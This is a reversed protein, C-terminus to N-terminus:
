MFMKAIAVLWRKFFPGKRGKKSGKRFSDFFFKTYVVSFNACDHHRYKKGVHKLRVHKSGNEKMTKHALIANEYLVEEDGKCFCIQMPAEPKWDYLSNEELRKKLEFNPNNEFQDILDARIMDKPIKPLADNIQGVNHAGEFLKPIEKDYPPQFANYFDEEPFIQYLENYAILLYPLYHPQTYERFMVANQTNALDYAGSMPSSATVKFNEDQLSELTKHLAMTAHGGQSYGTIFLQDNAQLNLTQNMARAIVLLDKGVSAESEVHHYLHTGEGYGLGTYDPFVVGYGDTAFLMCIMSEGNYDIHRKPIVVTGHNYVMMPIEKKINTPAFYMGSVKVKKGKEWSTYYIINYVDIGYTIPAIMQPVSKEKWVRNLDEVTFSDIKEYSILEAFASKSLLCFSLLVLIFHKM